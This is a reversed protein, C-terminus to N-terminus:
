VIHCSISILVGTVLFRNFTPLCVQISHMFNTSQLLNFQIREPVFQLIGQVFPFVWTCSKHVGSTQYFSLLIISTKSAIFWQGLIFKLRILLYQFQCVRNFFFKVINRKKGLFIKVHIFNNQTIFKIIKFSVLM